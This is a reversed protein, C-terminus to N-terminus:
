RQPTDWGPWLIRPRGGARGGGVILVDQLLASRRSKFRPVLELGDCARRIARAADSASAKPAIEVSDFVSAPIGTARSLSGAYARSQLAACGALLLQTLKKEKVRAAAFRIGDASCLRAHPFLLVGPLSRAIRASWAPGDSKRQCHCLFVGTM